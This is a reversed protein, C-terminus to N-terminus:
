DHIRRPFTLTAPMIKAQACLSTQGSSPAGDGIGRAAPTSKARLASVQSGCFVCLPSFCYHDYNGHFLRKDQQGHVANDTADFDLILRKPARASVCRRVAHRAGQASAIRGVTSATRGAAYPRPALWCFQKCQQPRYHLIRVCTSIIISIKM